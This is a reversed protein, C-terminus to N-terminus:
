RVLVKQLVKYDTTLAYFYSGNDTDYNESLIQSYKERLKQLRKIKALRDNDNILGYADLCIQGGKEIIADFIDLNMMKYVNQTIYTGAVQEKKISSGTLIIPEGQFLHLESNQKGLTEAFPSIIITTPLAISDYKGKNLEKTLEDDLDVGLFSVYDQYIKSINRMSILWKSFANIYEDNFNITKIGCSENFQEFLCLLYKNNTIGRDIM